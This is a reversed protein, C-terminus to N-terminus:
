KIFNEIISVVLEESYNEKVFSETYGDFKEAPKNFGERLIQQLHKEINRANSKINWENIVSFTEDISNKRFWKNIQECREAVTRNTIGIKFYQGSELLYLIKNKAEDFGYSACKPCGVGKGYNASLHSSVSQWYTNGCSIHTMLFKDGASAIYKYDAGHKNQCREVYNLFRTKRKRRSICESCNFPKMYDTTLRNLYESNCDNCVAKIVGSELSYIFSEGVLIRDLNGQIKPIIKNDVIKQEKRIAALKKNRIARCIPCGKGKLHIDLRMKFENNCHTCFILEKSTSSKFEFNYKFQHSYIKNAKEVYLVKTTARPVPTVLGNRVCSAETKVIEGTDFKVIVQRKNVYSVVEMWGFRNSKYREGAKM